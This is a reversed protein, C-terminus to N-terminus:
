KCKLDLGLGSMISQVLQIIDEGTWDDKPIMHEVGLEKAAEQYGLINYSTLVAIMINPYGTKIRRALDLGSDTPLHIELFILNPQFTEINELGENGDSDEKIDVIPFRAILINKLSQRFPVNADVILIKFM